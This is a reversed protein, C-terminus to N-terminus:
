MMYNGWANIVTSKAWQGVCHCIRSYLDARNSVVGSIQVGQLLKSWQIRGQM